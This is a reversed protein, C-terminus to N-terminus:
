VSPSGWFGKQVERGSSNWKVHHDHKLRGGVEGWEREREHGRVVVGAGNMVKEKGQPCNPRIEAEDNM